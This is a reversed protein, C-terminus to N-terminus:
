SEFWYPNLDGESYQQLLPADKSDREYAFKQASVAEKQEEFWYPNLDGENFESHLEANKTTEDFAYANLGAVSYTASMGILAAVLLSKKTLNKM